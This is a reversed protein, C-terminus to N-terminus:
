QLRPFLTLANGTRIESKEQESIGNFAEFRQLPRGISTSPLFPLDFGLLLSSPPVFSTAAALPADALCSTLDFYFSRLDEAIQDGSISNPILAPVLEEVRSSLFPIAGGGHTSILKIGSYRRRTGTLVLNILMRASDFSFEIFIPAASGTAASLMPPGILVVGRRHLVDVWPAFSRPGLYTGRINTTTAIGDLKLVDLAYEIEALTSDPDDHPVSAIAAFRGPYQAVLEAMMENVERAMRRAAEGRLEVTADPLSLVQARINGRAMIELADEASWAPLKPPLFSRYPFREASSLESARKVLAHYRSTLPHAHVDIVAQESPEPTDQRVENENDM